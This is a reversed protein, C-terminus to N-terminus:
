AKNVEFLGEPLNMIVKKQTFQIEQIWPAVFPVLTEQTENKVILLDQPGNSSFGCISGLFRNQSDRLEFDQIESLFITEGPKSVLFEEDICFLSGIWKEAETRDLIEKTKVILGDKHPRVSAVHFTHEGLTFTKLRGAWSAEQSFVFVVLDGKLGHADRIKGVAKM